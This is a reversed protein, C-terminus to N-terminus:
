YLASMKMMENIDKSNLTNNVIVWFACSDLLYLNFLAFSIDTDSLHTTRRDCHCQVLGIRLSYSCRSTPESDCYHSIHGLPALVIFFGVLRILYWVM